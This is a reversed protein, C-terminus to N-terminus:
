KEAMVGSSKDTYIHRRINESGGEVRDRFYAESDGNLFFVLQSKSHTRLKGWIFRSTLLPNAIDLMAQKEAARSRLRGRAMILVM